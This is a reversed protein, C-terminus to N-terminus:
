TLFKTIGSLLHNFSKSTNSNLDMYKPIVKSAHGKQFTNIIKSLEHGGFVDDVNRFRARNKYSNANFIPYVKEIADMDGLYWNELERCPIRVLVPCVGNQNDGCLKLLMAKLKRCDSADQDHLIIIKAPKHFSSFLKIKRPISKQLDSKGQHPRLFCNVNIRYGIPLVKPLIELLFNKMSPEELLFEIQEDKFNQTSDM